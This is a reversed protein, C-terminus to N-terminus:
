IGTSGLGGARAKTAETLLEPVTVYRAIVAQAIRDGPNVTFPQNGHNILIAQIEDRYDADVTGPSNVVVVAHRFALGSRSRVQLEYGAPLKSFVGTPFPAWEGPQLTHPEDIEARLDFGASQSTAYCPAEHKGQYTIEPKNIASM